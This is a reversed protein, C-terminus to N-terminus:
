NLRWYNSMKNSIGPIIKSHWWCHYYYFGLGFNRSRSAQSLSIFMTRWGGVLLVWGLYYHFALTRIINKNLQASLSMSSAKASNGHFRGKLTEYSQLFFYDLPWILLLLHIWRGWNCALLLVEPRTQLAQSMIQLYSVMLYQWLRPWTLM